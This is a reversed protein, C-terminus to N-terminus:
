SSYADKLWRSLFAWMSSSFSREVSAWLFTLACISWKQKGGSFVRKLFTLIAIGVASLFFWKSNLSSFFVELVLNEPITSIEFCDRCLSPVWHVIWDCTISLNLEYVCFTKRPRKTHSDPIGYAHRPFDSVFRLKCSVFRFRM